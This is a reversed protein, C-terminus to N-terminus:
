GLEEAEEAIERLLALTHECEASLPYNDYESTDGREYWFELEMSSVGWLLKGYDLNQLDMQYAQILEEIRDSPIDVCVTDSDATETYIWNRMGWAYVTYDKAPKDWGLIPFFRELYTPDSLLQNMCEQYLEVDVWYNRYISKGNKLKYKLYVYHEDEYYNTAVKEVGNQAIEYIPEWEDTELYDLQEKDSLYVWKEDEGEGIQRHFRLYPDMVAMSEIESKEPLYTNQGSVDFRLTLFIVAAGAITVFIHRKRHIAQRIDWRYIVEMLMCGLTGFLIIFLIEWVLSNLMEHAVLAACLAAPITLLLKIVGETYSFALASGAAETRRKKYLIVSLAVLLAVIAVLQCLIGVTPWTGTLGENGLRFTTAHFMSFSWPSSCTLFRIIDREYDQFVAKLFVEQLGIGLLWVMPGYLIFVGLACITTLFKGTLMMALIAGSFSVLFHLLELLYAVLLEGAAQLGIETYCAGALLTLIQSVGYAVAFSLFGSLYKVAFLEERKMSISHLFDLKSPAHLYGFLIVAVVIGAALAFFTNEMRDFGALECFTQNLDWGANYKMNDSQESALVMVIRFPIILAFLVTQLITLWGTQRIDEKLLKSFSIKSTM